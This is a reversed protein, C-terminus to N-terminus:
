IKMVSIVSRRVLKSRVKDSHRKVDRSELLGLDLALLSLAGNECVCWRCGRVGCCWSFCIVILVQLPCRSLPLM